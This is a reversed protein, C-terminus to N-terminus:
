PVPAQKHRGSHDPASQETATGDVEDVALRDPVSGAVTVELTEIVVETVIVVVPELAAVPLEDTDQLAVTVAVGEVLAALVEDLLAVALLVAEEDSVDLELAVAETELLAWAEGTHGALMNPEDHM